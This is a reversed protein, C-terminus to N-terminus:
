LGHSALSDLCSKTVLCCCLFSVLIVQGHVESLRCAIELVESSSLAQWGAGPSSSLAGHPLIIFHCFM